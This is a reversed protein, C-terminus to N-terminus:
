YGNLSRFKNRHVSLFKESPRFQLNTPLSVLAGAGDILTPLRTKLLSPATLLCGDEDISVLHHDFLWHVTATLAIGNQVVDPGGDSVPVIHAAQVESRGREDILSLGSVACRYGYARCVVKRFARDRLPRSTLCALIARVRGEARAQLRRALLELAQDDLAGYSKLDPSNWTQGFGTEVIKCFDADELSRVSKGRLYLGVQSVNPLERLALEAYIGETRWPVPEDFTSFNKIVAYFHSSSLPDPVIDSVVATGFYAKSGGAARPQRFVVWDGVCSTLTERYRKPFHYRESIDDDYASQVKTDLVAKM